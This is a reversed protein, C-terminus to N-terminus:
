QFQTIAVHVNSGQILLSATGGEEGPAICTISTGNYVLPINTFNLRGIGGFQNFFETRITTDDIDELTMKNVLWQVGTITGTLSTCLFSANGHPTTVYNEPIIDVVSFIFVSRSMRSLVKPVTKAKCLFSIIGRSM